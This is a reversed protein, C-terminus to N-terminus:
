PILKNQFRAHNRARWIENAVAIVSARFIVKCQASIPNSMALLCDDLNITGSNVNLM